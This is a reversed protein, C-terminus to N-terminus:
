SMERQQTVLRIVVVMELWAVATTHQALAHDVDM